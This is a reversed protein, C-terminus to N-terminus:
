RRKVEEYMLLKETAFNKMRTHAQDIIRNIAETKAKETKAEETQPEADPSVKFASSIMGRARELTMSHTNELPAGKQHRLFSQEVREMLTKINKHTLQLGEQDALEKLVKRLVRVRGTGPEGPYMKGTRAWEEDSVMEVVRIFHKGRRLILLKGDILFNRTDTPFWNKVPTFMLEGYSMGKNTAAPQGPAGGVYAAQQKTLRHGETISEALGAAHLIRSISKGLILSEPLQIHAQFSAAKEASAPGETPYSETNPKTVSFIGRHELQTSQAIEASHVLSIVDFAVAHHAVRAPPDKVQKEMIEAIQESSKFTFLKLLSEIEDDPQRMFYGYLDFPNTMYPDFWLANGATKGFKNGAADTLLPVTFGVPDHLADKPFREHPDPEHDRIYKFCEIGTVINGYQDSGGIQMQVGTSKFMHWWDWAQMTPYIFEALSMGDGSALRKKVTDRSLLTSVRVGRFLDAVIEILSLTNYWQSNNLLARSWIKSEKKYGHLNALVDINQWIRKLQYHIKTINMTIDAKAMRPRAKLLGTPDGIKVTAGGIVSVARHGHMYMWFLPMLPLLHGIHLSPATPDIGVYAGIRKLRMLESIQEETGAIQKVYGREKLLNWLHPVEGKRILQAKATWDEEMKKRRALVALTIPRSQQRVRTLSRLRCQRCLAVPTGYGSPVSASLM